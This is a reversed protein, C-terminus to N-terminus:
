TRMIKEADARFSASLGEKEYRLFVGGTGILGFSILRSGFGGHSPPTIAPGDREKWLLVLESGTEQAELHWTIAIKGEPATLAGHKCANTTMEHILLATSM